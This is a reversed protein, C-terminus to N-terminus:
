LVEFPLLSMAGILVDSSAWSNGGGGWSAGWSNRVLFQLEGNVTRFGIIARAHGGADPDGPDCPGEIQGARYNQLNQGVVSGLWVPVNAALCAAVTEPADSNPMVDVEGAFPKAAAVEVVPITLEPIPLLNGDDDTADPVDSDGDGVFPASGWQAFCAGAGDLDAGNDALTPLTDGPKTALARQQAYYTQGFYLPSQLVPSAGLANRRTFLLTAASFAWCMSRMGQNLVRPAFGTLDAYTPLSARAARITGHDIAAFRQIRNKEVAPLLGTGFKM